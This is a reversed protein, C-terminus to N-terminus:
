NEEKEEEEGEEEWPEERWAVEGTCSFTFELEHESLEVRIGEARVTFDYLEWLWSM